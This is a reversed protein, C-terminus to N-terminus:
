LGLTIFVHPLNRIEGILPGAKLSLVTIRRKRKKISIKLAAIKVSVCKGKQSKSASNERCISSLSLRTEWSVLPFCPNVVCISSNFRSISSSVFTILSPGYPTLAFLNEVQFHIEQSKFILFGKMKKFTLKKKTDGLYVVGSTLFVHHLIDIVVSHNAFGM